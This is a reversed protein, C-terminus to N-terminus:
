NGHPKRLCDFLCTPRRGGARERSRTREAATTKEPSWMVNAMNLPGKDMRPKVTFVSSFSGVKFSRPPSSARDSRTDHHQRGWLPRHRCICRWPVRCNGFLREGCAGFAGRDRRDGFKEFHKGVTAWCNGFSLMPRTQGVNRRIRGDENPWCNHWSRGFKTLRPLMETPKPWGRCCMTSTQWKKDSDAPCQGFTVSKPRMQGNIRWIQGFEALNWGLNALNPRTQAPCRRPDGPSEGFKPPKQPLKRASIAPPLEELCAAFM